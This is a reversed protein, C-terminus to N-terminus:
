TTHPTNGRQQTALPTEREQRAITTSTDFWTSGLVRSHSCASVPSYIGSFYMQTPMTELKCMQTPMTELKCMQTPMTELKCMQTPMTELKGTPNQRSTHPTVHSDFGPYTILM